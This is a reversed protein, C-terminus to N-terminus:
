QMLQRVANVTQERLSRDSDVTLTARLREAAKGIVLDAVEKKLSNQAALREAKVLDAAQHAIRDAHRRAEAITQSVEHETDRQIETALLRTDESVRALRQGAERLMSDAQTLEEARARVEGALRAHRAQWAAIAKPRLIYFLIGNFVIYNVWYWKLSGLGEGHGAGGAALALDPLLAVLAAPAVTGLLPLTRLLATKVTNVPNLANLANVMEM